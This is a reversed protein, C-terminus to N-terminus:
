RSTAFGSVLLAGEAEAVQPGPGRDIGVRLQDRTPADAAAARIRREHEHVIERVAQASANLERRVPCHTICVANHFLPNRLSSRPALRLPMGTMRLHISIAHGHDRVDIERQNGLFALPRPNNNSQAPLLFNEGM